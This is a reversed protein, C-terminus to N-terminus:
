MEVQETMARVYEEEALGTRNTCFGSYVEQVDGDPDLALFCDVAEAAIVRVPKGDTNIWGDPDLYERAYKEAKEYADDFSVAKVTVIRNEYLRETDGITYTFVLRVGYLSKSEKDRKPTM